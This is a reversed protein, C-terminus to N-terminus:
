VIEHKLEKFYNENEIHRRIQKIMKNISYDILLNDEYIIEQVQYFKKTTKSFYSIKVIFNEITTDYKFSIEYDPLAHCLELFNTIKGDLSIQPLNLIPQTTINKM